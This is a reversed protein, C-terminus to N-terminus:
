PVAGFCREISRSKWTSRNPAEVSLAPLPTNAGDALAVDRPRGPQRGRQRAGFEVADDNARDFELEVREDELHAGGAIRHISGRVLWPRLPQGARLSPRGVGVPVRELEQDLAAVAVAEFQV